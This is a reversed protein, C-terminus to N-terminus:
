DVVITLAYRIEGVKNAATFDDASGVVTWGDKVYADKIQGMLRVLAAKDDHQKGAEEVKRGTAFDKKIVDMRYSLKDSM